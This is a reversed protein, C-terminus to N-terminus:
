SRLCTSKSRPLGARDSTACASWFVARGHSRQSRELNVIACFRHFPQFFLEMSSLPTVVHKRKHKKQKWCIGDKDPRSVDLLTLWYTVRHAVIVLNVEEETLRPFFKVEKVVGNHRPNSAHTLYSMVAVCSYWLTRQYDEIIKICNGWFLAPRELTLARKTVSYTMGTCVYHFHAVWAFMNEVSKTEGQRFWGRRRLVSGERGKRQLTMEGEGEMERVIDAASTWGELEKGKEVLAKLKAPM